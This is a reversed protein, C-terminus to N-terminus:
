AGCSPRPGRHRPCPTSLTRTACTNQLCLSWKMVTSAGCLAFQQEIRSEDRGTRTVSTRARRASSSGYGILDSETRASASATRSRTRQGMVVDAGGQWFAVSASDWGARLPSPLCVVALDATPCRFTKVGASPGLGSIPSWQSLGCHLFADCTLTECAFVCGRLQRQVRAPRGDAEM